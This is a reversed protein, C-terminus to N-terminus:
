VAENSGYTLQVVDMGATLITTLNRLVILTTVSVRSLAYMSSVLMLTFLIVLGIWDVVVNMLLNMEGVVGPVWMQAFKLLIATVTCQVPLLLNPLKHELLIVKNALTLGSGAVCYCSLM